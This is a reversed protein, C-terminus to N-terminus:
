APVADEVDAELVLLDAERDAAAAREQAALVRALRPLAVAVGVGDRGVEVRDLEEARAHAEHEAVRAHQELVDPLSHALDRTAPHYHPPAPPLLLPLPPQLLRQLPLPPQQLRWRSRDAALSHNIPLGQDRAARHRGESIVPLPQPLPNGYTPSHM